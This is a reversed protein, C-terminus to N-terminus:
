LATRLLDDSKWIQMLRNAAGRYLLEYEPDAAAADICSLTYKALHADIHAGAFAALDPWSPIKGADVPIAARLDTPLPVSGYAARHAGFIVAAVGLAQWPEPVLPAISCVAQPITLAHTWGYKANADDELLMSAAAARTLTRLAGLGDLGPGVAASLVETVVPAARRVLPAIFDSDGSGTYGIAEVAAALSSTPSTALFPAVTLTPGTAWKRALGRLSLAANRRGAAHGALLYLWISGHAAATLRPYALDAVLGPLQDLSTRRVVAVAAADAGEVDGCAIAVRLAEVPDGAPLRREVSAVALRTGSRVYLEGVWAIREVIAEVQDPNAYRCLGARALVELPAHLIFSSPDADIIPESVSALASDIRDPM